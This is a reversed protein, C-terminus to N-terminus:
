LVKLKTLLSMLMIVRQIAYVFCKACNGSYDKLYYESNHAKQLLEQKVGM